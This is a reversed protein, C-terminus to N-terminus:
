MASRLSLSCLLFLIYSFYYHLPHIEDKNSYLYSSNTYIIYNQNEDKESFICKYKEKKKHIKNINENSKSSKM